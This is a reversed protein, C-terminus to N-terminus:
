SLSNESVEVGLSAQNALALQLSPM